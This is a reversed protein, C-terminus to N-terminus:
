QEQLLKELIPLAQTPDSQMLSNIAILKLSEDSEAAPSVPAGARAHIEVELAQADNLWHSSPYQQRLAALPPWLPMASDRVTKRMPRGIFRGM